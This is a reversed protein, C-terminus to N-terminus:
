QQQIPELAPVIVPRAPTRPTFEAVIEPAAIEPASIEPVAINGAVTIADGDSAIAGDPRLGKTADKGAQLLKPISLEPLELGPNIQIAALQFGGHLYALSQQLMEGADVAVWGDATRQRYEFHLHPGTSNGTSGVRGIVTGQEVWEGSKVFVESMHGYLTQASHEDHQLVVTVGYGGLIDSLAVRGSYAAVIPTGQPAAIDTGTHLRHNGFIPHIRWGFASSIRAPVTLPFMLARNDNGRLAKPRVTRSYYDRVSRRLHIGQGDITISGVRVASVAPPLAGPAAAGASGPASTTGSAGCVSTPIAEGARIVTECGTSRESLIVDPGATPETAGVSYDTPDIYQAGYDVANDETAKSTPSPAEELPAAAPAPPALEVPPVSVSPADATSTDIGLAAASPEAASAVWDESASIDAASTSIKPDAAEASDAKTSVTEASNAETSNPAAADAASLEVPFYEPPMVAAMEIPEVSAASRSPLGPAEPMPLPAAAIVQKAIAVNSASGLLGACGLGSALMSYARRYSKYFKSSSHKAM